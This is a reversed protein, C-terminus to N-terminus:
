LFSGPSRHMNWAVFIFIDGWSCSSYGAWHLSLFAMLPITYDSSHLLMNLLFMFVMAFVTRILVAPLAEINHLGKKYLIAAISWFVAAMIATVEGIM